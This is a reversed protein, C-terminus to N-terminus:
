FPCNAHEGLSVSPSILLMTLKYRAERMAKGPSFTMSSASIKEVFYKFSARCFIGTELRERSTLVILIVYKSM